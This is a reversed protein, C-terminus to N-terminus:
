RKQLIKFYFLKIQTKLLNYVFIELFFIVNTAMFCICIYLKILVSSM